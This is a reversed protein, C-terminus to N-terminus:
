RYRGGSMHDNEWEWLRFDGLSTIHFTPGFIEVTFQEYPGLAMMPRIENHLFHSMKDITPIGKIIDIVVDVITEPDVELIPGKKELASVRLVEDAIKMADCKLWDASWSVKLKADLSSNLYLTLAIVMIKPKDVLRFVEAELSGSSLRASIEESVIRVPLNGGIQYKAM